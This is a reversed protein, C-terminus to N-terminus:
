HNIESSDRKFLNWLRWFTSENYPNTIENMVCERVYQLCCTSSLLCSEHCGCGENIYSGSITVQGCLGACSAMEYVGEENAKPPVPLAPPETTTQVDGECEEGTMLKVDDIAIDGFRSGANSATFIVQFDEQMEDISITHELWKAGRSGSMEFKNARLKGWMDGLTMSVPKVSVVMSGVDRGFMFYHFRFCASKLSLERPYIPSVFHYSGYSDDMLMYHGDSPSRFTYDIQPGTKPSQFDDVTSFRKWSGLFPNEAAWGCMDESEFDCSYDRTLSPTQCSGLLNSWKEGDCYALRHGIVDYGDLCTVKAKMPSNLVFGNELQEYEECGSKACFPKKGRIRGRDCTFVMKGQLFFGTNCRFHISGNVKESFGNELQFSEECQGNSQGVRYVLLLAWFFKM